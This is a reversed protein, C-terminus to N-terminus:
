VWLKWLWFLGGLGLMIVPILWGVKQPPRQSLGIMMGQFAVVSLGALIILTIAQWPVRGYLRAFDTVSCMLAIILCWAAPIVLINGTTRRGRAQLVKAVVSLGVGFFLWSYITNSELVTSYISTQGFTVIQLLAPKNWVNKNNDM